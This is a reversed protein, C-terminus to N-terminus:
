TGSGKPVLVRLAAPHVEFRAPTKTILEGDANVSRPRATAVTFATGRHTRVEPWAGLAGRRFARLMLLLKWVNAFELSYLDLQGDDIAAETAVVNGGGYHRGNGVAVQLTRVHDRGGAHDVTAHFPRAKALVRLAARGYGLKGWRRKEASTLTRAIDVSLGISAVNFFPRGNVSGLDLVITRGGLIVDAAADLDSPIGLTLALDNATGLPLIGFPLETAVLGPAAANVSGDGGAVGVVDVRGHHEVIATAVGGRDAPAVEEVECGAECLRRLAGDLERRGSRAHRNRVLLVRRRGAPVRPAGDPVVPEPAASRIM